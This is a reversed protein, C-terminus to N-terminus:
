LLSIILFFWSITAIGVVGWAIGRILIDRSRRYKTMDIYHFHNINYNFGLTFHNSRGGDNVEWFKFISLLFEALVGYTSSEAKVKVDAVVM